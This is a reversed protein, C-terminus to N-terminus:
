VRGSDEPAPLFICDYIVKTNKWIRTVEAGTFYGSFWIFLTFLVLTIAERKTLKVIIKERNWITIAGGPFSSSRPTTVLQAEEGRRISSQALTTGESNIV